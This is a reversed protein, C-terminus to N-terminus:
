SGLLPTVADCVQAAVADVDAEATWLADLEARVSQQVQAFNAHAPKTVADTIGDVVVEQLQEESLNPNAEQLTDANLLAKRPPPFYAALKEANEPNTFYALFDTAVEPSQGETLVGVGAQGVVNVHGAPGSPLPVLDWEFSDDLSSARSIQTITMASDGAFFDATTGPGPLAKDTFTREHIWTLASIMEPSTFQCTQGDESWPAAGFGSWITALNEWQAYDFDRVVLGATDNEEAAAAAVEAAEDWTWRDQTILERPTPQDAAELQDLNVFIGFPSNSFPYAFLGDGDQWLALTSPDIDEYDYGEAASLTPALDSLAGSQVFEPASSEFVWALDPPNGGAIQTTVGTTYSEFPLPEFTVASVKDGNEAVYADAIETFLALQSEDSTWVTMRLEIPGEPQAPSSGCAALVLALGAATVGKIMRPVPRSM